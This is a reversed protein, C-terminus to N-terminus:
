QGKKLHKDFFAILNDQFEHPSESGGGFHGGGKSINLTSEVGAKRLAEHLIESQCVPVVKDSDGHALLFPPEDGDIYTIPNARAAKKPNAEVKGGLHQAMLDLAVDYTTGKPFRRYVDLFDTPAAVTLVAQVRSSYSKYPGQQELDEVGDTTGILAALHGGASLGFVGIRKPDFNYDKAHARLWRIAAKCDELPDPFAAIDSSRYSISAMAYGRPMVWWPYANWGRPPGVPGGEARLELRAPMTHTKGEPLWKNPHNAGKWGGGHIMVILPLTASTEVPRYVNLFLDEGGMTAFQVDEWVLVPAYRTDQTDSRKKESQANASDVISGAGLLLILAISIVWRRSRAKNIQM